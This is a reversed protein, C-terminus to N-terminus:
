KNELNKAMELHHKIVPLTKAAYDRLKDSKATENAKKYMEINKEHGKVMLQIYAADFEGSPIMRFREYEKQDDDLLKNELSVNEAKAVNMLDINAKSHDTKLWLWSEWNPKSCTAATLKKLSNLM